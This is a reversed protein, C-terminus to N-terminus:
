RDVAIRVGLAILLAGFARDVLRRSGSLLNRVARLHLTTVFALWFLASTGVMATVLLTAEEIRFTRRDGRLTNSMVLVMDPGPSLM